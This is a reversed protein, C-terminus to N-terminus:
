TPRSQLEATNRDGTVLQRGVQRRQNGIVARRFRWRSLAARAAWALFRRSHDIRLQAIALAVFMTFATADNFNPSADEKACFSVNNFDQLGIPAASLDIGGIDFTVIKGGTLDIPAQHTFSQRVGFLFSEQLALEFEFIRGKVKHSWVTGQFNFERM